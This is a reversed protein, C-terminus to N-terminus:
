HIGGCVIGYFRCHSCGVTSNQAAVFWLVNKGTSNVQAELTYTIWKAMGYIFSIFILVGAVKKLERNELASFQFIDDNNENFYNM